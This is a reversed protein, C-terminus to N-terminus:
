SDVERGYDELRRMRSMIRPQLSLLEFLSDHARNSNSFLECQLQVRANEVLHRRPEILRQAADVDCVSGSGPFAAADISLEDLCDCSRLLQDLASRGITASM